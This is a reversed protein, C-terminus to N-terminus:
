STATATRRAPLSSRATASPACRRAPPAGCDIGHHPALQAPDPAHADRLRQDRALVGGALLYAHRLSNGDPTYYGGKQGPEQFWLAQHLKGNSEFEASLVRGTRLPKATPRSTEYVVAFRDGKRLSRFDIDGSFIDALQSAVSRSHPRRGNAAFLSTRVTGSALRTRPSWRRPRSARPSAAQPHARRRLRKFGGDDDPIWRASLKHLAHDRTAEATVTRGPRGLLPRPRRTAACSRLAAPCRRHGPAQLLAEATDSTRTTETRFLTFSDRRAGSRTQLPLPRSRRSCRACRCSPRMPASRPWPSPVAVAALLLAALAATIQKPHHGLAHAARSAIM